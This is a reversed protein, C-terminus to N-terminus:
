NAGFYRYPELSFTPTVMRFPYGTKYQTKQDDGAHGNGCIGRLRGAGNLKLAQVCCLRSNCKANSFTSICKNSEHAGAFTIYCLAFCLGTDLFLGSGLPDLYIDASGIIVNVM